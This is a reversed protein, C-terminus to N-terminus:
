NERFGFTEKQSSLDISKVEKGKGAIKELGTQLRKAFNERPLIITVPAGSDQVIAQPEQLDTLDVAEVRKALEFNQWENLMKLYIKVREQNDKVAKATNDENWGRLAFPPREDTKTIAGLLVADDDAWVEGSNLHVVARPVRENINVRIGDPLIRSVVVSKVLTFKEVGRKIEELDAKWVGSKETSARVIREIDDKSIRSVGRVEIAKVDFFATATVTRYGMFMLFSLGFLIGFIFVLTFVFNALTGASKKRSAAAGRPRKAMTNRKRTTRKQTAM